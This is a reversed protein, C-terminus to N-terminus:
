APDSAPSDQTGEPLLAQELVQELREVPVFRLSERVAPSLEELDSLNDAPILVTRIGNRYAAMSKEKLGGIPLVRGRLTIEGTMAVDHRVPRGTLASIVATAMTIGASPGDKPVAGEPVHIHVDKSQYFGPDIRLAECRSRICSIATRASEKMVDGLSGTLEIKGSGNLICVEIQLMEGGVQTWALGNVLGVEDRNGLTETKYKHGGLFDTITDATVTVKQSEESVLAKAAKRCLSAVSRELRRVGAERTYHDILAYIAKDAVRFTKATLGHQRMQKPILHKKAIYFKEERTYSSLHIVEMRDLLPPPITETTNATCLFLVKSLDFPAEIYHDTFAANQEADLVELLASSPDGRFDAGLKDVEDLLFLPNRVGAQRMAALIRGPMSGIYTKRHGRIDAEDKVGGLSVRVYKRGIARAISKAVSTKGTGPPGVLCIIQGRLDPALKRVALLELIREKVKELGYHDKDLVRAAKALDIRDQTENNWPLSLCWDLYNRIVVSEQSMPPMKALKQIEKEFRQRTEEPLTLKALRRRYGEAEDHVDEGEGLEDSIVRMQERLFYERQNKDIAEKVREYIEKELHLIENESDLIQVLAELRRVVDSQELIAQKQEIKMIINGAVYEVLENADESALVNLVMEKPMKPSSVSYDEFLTKVARILAQLYTDESQRVSRLPFASVVCAAYEELENVEVIKARYKGEVLVRISGDPLKLLQRIEAVVGVAYVDKEVPEDVRIDRQATLFIRQDNEMAEHLAAISRKRGVDFHLAVKPFLVLGRLPLLPLNVLPQDNTKM